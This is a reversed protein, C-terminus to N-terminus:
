HHSASPYKGILKWIWRHFRHFSAVPEAFMLICEGYVATMEHEECFQIAAKSESGQQMWVKTIGAEAAKQLVLETQAPPVCIVLAAVKEPLAKFDTYCREGEIIEAEPHIPLVKYGKRKLDRLIATGFKMSNRSAGVLALTRQALIEQIALQTTM